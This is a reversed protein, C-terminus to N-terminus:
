RQWQEGFARLLVGWQCEQRLATVTEGRGGSLVANMSATGNRLASWSFINLFIVM